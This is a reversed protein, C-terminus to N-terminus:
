YRQEELTSLQYKPQWGSRLVDTIVEGSLIAHLRPTRLRGETAAIAYQAVGFWPTYDMRYPTIAFVTRGFLKIETGNNGVIPTARTLLFQMVRGIKFQKVRM